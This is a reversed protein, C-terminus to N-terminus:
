AIDIAHWVLGNPMVATGIYTGSFKSGTANLKVKRVARHFSDDTVLSWMFVDGDQIGVYVPTGRYETTDLVSLPGWKYIVQNM